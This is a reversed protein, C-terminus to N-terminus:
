AAVKEIKVFVSRGRDYLYEGTGNKYVMHYVKGFLSHTFGALPAEGLVEHKRMM